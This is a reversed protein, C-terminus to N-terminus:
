ADRAMNGLAEDVVGVDLTWKASQPNKDLEESKGNIVICEGGEIMQRINSHDELIYNSAGCLIETAQIPSFIRNFMATGSPGGLARSRSYCSIQEGFSLDQPRVVQFGHRTFVEEVHAENILVRGTNTSLGRRSLFIKMPKGPQTSSTNLRMYIARAEPTYGKGLLYSQSAIWLKKVRLPASVPLVTVDGLGLLKLFFEIMGLNRASSFLPLGRLEPFELLAWVRSLTELLFHGYEDPYENDFFIGERVTTEIKASPLGPLSYRVSEDLRKVKIHRSSCYPDELRFSSLDLVDGKSIIGGPRLVVNRALRLSNGRISKQAVRGDRAVHGIEPPLHLEYDHM